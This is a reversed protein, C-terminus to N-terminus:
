EVVRVAVLGKAVLGHCPHLLRTGWEADREIVADEDISLGDVGLAHKEPRRVVALLLFVDCRERLTMERLARAALGGGLVVGNEGGRRLRSQVPM